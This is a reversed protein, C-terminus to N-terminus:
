VSDLKASAATSIHVLLEGLKVDKTAVIGRGGGRHPMSQVKINGQYDAVDLHVDERAMRVLSPWDYQGTSEVQRSRTRSIWDIVSQEEPRIERCRLFSVLAADFNGRAYEAKAERFLAKHLFGEPIDALSLVYRADYLAGSYYRLRLFAESCNLRLVIAESNLRLGRSYAIAAPLWESARFYADGRDKWGEVTDPMAPSVNQLGTRWTIGHLIPHNPDVFVIDTPSDVRVLPHSGQLPEKLTPERIAIVTGIPFLKDLHDLSCGITTPFNYMSLNQVLGDTDEVVTSIAVFRACPAITRCLLFHGVHTKRISMNSFTIRELNQLPTSSSHNALGTYTQYVKSEGALATEPEERLALLESVLIARSMLPAPGPAIKLGEESWAQYSDFYQDLEDPSMDIRLVM